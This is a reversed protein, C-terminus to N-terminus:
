PTNVEARLNNVPAGDLLRSVCARYFLVEDGLQIQFGPNPVDCMGFGPLWESFKEKVDLLCSLLHSFIHM